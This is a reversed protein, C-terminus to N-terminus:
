PIFVVDGRFDSDPLEKLFVGSDRNRYANHFGYMNFVELGNGMAYDTGIFCKKWGKSLAIAGAAEIDSEILDSSIYDFFLVLVKRPRKLRSQFISGKVEKHIEVRLNHSKKGFGTVNKIQKFRRRGTPSMWGDDSVEYKRMNM